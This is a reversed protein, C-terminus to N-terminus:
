SIHIDDSIGGDWMKIIRNADKLVTEDHTIIVVLHEKAYEKLYDMVLFANDHDLSATPEDAFLPM